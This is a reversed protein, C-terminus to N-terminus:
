HDNRRGHEAHVAPDIDYGLAQVSGDLFAVHWAGPHPSGFRFAGLASGGTESINQDQWPLQEKSAVRVVGWDYSWMGAPEAISSDEYLMPEVFKEGILYTHSTGDGVRGLTVSSRQFVVGGTDEAPEWPKTMATSPVDARLFRDGACAAYDGRATVEVELSNLQKLKGPYASATRRSPCHFVAVPMMLRTAASRLQDVTFRDRHGDRGAEQLPAEDLHALINYTWTGPQEPGSGCDPDPSWNHAWGGAPLHGLSAERVLCAQSLQRLHNICEARRAMERASQVAPLILATLIGLIGIAVLIEVLTYGQPREDPRNRSVLMIERTWLPAPTGAAASGWSYM